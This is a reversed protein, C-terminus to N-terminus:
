SARAEGFAKVREWVNPVHKPLQLRSGEELIPILKDFEPGSHSGTVALRIPHFLEKGRAGTEAKVENVIQKFREPTLRAEKSSEDELIKATFRALVADTNQWALVESNDPAALAAAADYNFILSARAPLQDLRDV